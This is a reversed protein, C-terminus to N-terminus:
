TFAWILLAYGIVAVVVALAAGAVVPAAAIMWESAKQPLARLLWM